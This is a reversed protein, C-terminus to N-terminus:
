TRPWCTSTFSVNARPVFRKTARQNAAPQQSASVLAWWRARLARRRQHPRRAPPNAVQIYGFAPVLPAGRVGGLRGRGRAPPLHFDSVAPTAPRRPTLHYVSPRRGVAPTAPSGHGRQAEVAWGAVRLLRWAATVTRVDCGVREAITARTIAVHRGTGHDAHEAMVEAIAVLTASTISVRASVCVPDFGASAAWEGLAALWGQRSTWMPARPAQAGAQEV